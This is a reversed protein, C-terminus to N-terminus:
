HKKFLDDLIIGKWIHSFTEDYQEHSSNPFTYYILNIISNPVHIRLEIPSVELSSNNISYSCLYHPLNHLIEDEKFIEYEFSVRYENSGKYTKREFKNLSHVASLIEILRGEILKAKEPSWRRKYLSSNVM